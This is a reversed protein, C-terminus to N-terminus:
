GIFDNGQRDFIPNTTPLTLFRGGEALNLNSHGPPYVRVDLSGDENEGIVKGITIYEEKM